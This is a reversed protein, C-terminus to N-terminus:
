RILLRKKLEPLCTADCGAEKLYAEIGGYHDKIRDIISEINRQRLTIAYLIRDSPFFGFSLIKRKLLMSKFFPLLADNSKMFDDIILQREVGLAQLILACIIGTRDKGAQCHILVPSHEESLLVEIIQRFIPLTADLMEIYLSNSIDSIMSESNKKYLFPKLKERTTQQFDLPLSLIDINDISRKRKKYETPARLDIITRIELFHFMTIDENSISDPNASRFIIGDKIKKNDDTIIGGIDRFNLVSNLNIKQQPKDRDM